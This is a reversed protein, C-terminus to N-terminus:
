RGAQVQIRELSDTQAIFLSECAALIDNMTNGNYSVLRNNADYGVHDGTMNGAADYAFTEESYVVGSLSKVTRKTVRSLEDYTYCLKTSNALAKSSFCGGSPPHFM